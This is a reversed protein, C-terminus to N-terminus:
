VEKEPNPKVFYFTLLNLSSLSKISKSLDVFIRKNRKKRTNLICISFDTFLNSCYFMTVDQWTIIM